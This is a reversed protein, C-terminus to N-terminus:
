ESLAEALMSACADDLDFRFCDAVLADWGEVAFYAHEISQSFDPQNYSDLANVTLLGIEVVESFGCETFNQSVIGEWALVRLDGSVDAEPISVYVACGAGEDSSFVEFDIATVRAEDAEEVVEDVDEDVDEDAPAVDSEEAAASVDEPGDPTTSESEGCSTVMLLAILLPMSWAHRM